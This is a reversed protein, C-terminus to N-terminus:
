CVGQKGQSTWGLAEISMTCILEGGKRSARILPSLSPPGPSAHQSEVYVSLDAGQLVM